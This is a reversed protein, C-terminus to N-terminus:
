SFVSMIRLCNIEKRPNGIAFDGNSVLVISSKANGSLKGEVICAVVLSSMQFDSEQWKKQVDFYLPAKLIGSKESTFAIPTFKISSDGSFTIPSAFQLSVSELGKTIPNDAFKHILPLYPFQIQSNMTFKGATAPDYCIRLKCRYYFNDSITIGKRRLWEELGVSVQIGSANTFNGAVRNVALFLNGGRALYKDIVALHSAPITDKPRIIVITKFKDSIVTTDTLKLTQVNYLVSLETFVKTIDSIYPEGHGQILAISPKDAVSLKKIATSLAYELGSGPQLFPIKEKEKGMTIVAGMFAKQQKVQDKERVNIMIPRVGNQVAENELDSNEGPNVFKYVVMGKSREGYEILM